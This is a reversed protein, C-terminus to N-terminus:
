RNKCIFEECKYIYIYGKKIIKKIYRLTAQYKVFRKKEIILCLHKTMMYEGEHQM